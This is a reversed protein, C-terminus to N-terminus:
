RHKKRHTPTPKDLDAGQDAIVIATRRDRKLHAFYDVNEAYYEYDNVTAHLQRNSAILSSKTMALSDILYAPSTTVTRRERALQMQRLAQTNAQQDLWASNVIKSDTNQQSDLQYQLITIQKNIAQIARNNAQILATDAEIENMNIYDSAVSADISDPDLEYDTMSFDASEKVTKGAKKRLWVPVKVTKGSTIRHHLSKNAARIERAPLHFQAAVDKIRVDQRTM